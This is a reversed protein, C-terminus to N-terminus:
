QATERSKVVGETGCSVAKQHPKKVEALLEIAVLSRTALVPAATAQQQAGCGTSSQDALM